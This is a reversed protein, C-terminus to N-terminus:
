WLISLVYEPPLEADELKNEPIIGSSELVFYLQRLHQTTHAALNDLREMKRTTYAEDKPSESGLQLVWARYQEIITRGFDAIDQFNTYSRGADYARPSPVGTTFEEIAYKVRTFVHYTLENMPRARGPASWTLKDAPMQRVAREVAELAREVMLALMDIEGRFYFPLLCEGFPTGVKSKACQVRMNFGVRKEREELWGERRVRLTM